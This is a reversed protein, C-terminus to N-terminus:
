EDSNEKLPFYQELLKQFERKINQPKEKKSYFKERKLLEHILKFENPDKVHEGLKKLIRDSIENSGRAWEGNPSIDIPM